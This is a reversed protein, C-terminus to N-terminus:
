ASARRLLKKVTRKWSAPFPRALCKLGHSFCRQVMFRAGIRFAEDRHFLFPVMIRLPPYGVQRFRITEADTMKLHRQLFRTVESWTEPGRKESAGNPAFLTFEEYTYHFRLGAEHFKMCLDGDACLRFSEDFGGSERVVATKALVGQHCYPHRWFIWRLDWKEHFQYRAGDRAVPAVIVQTANQEAALLRDLTAPACICDDCGLVYFWEGKADRVGKNLANYIGTDPESVVKLGPTKAALERLLEVTGDTSAGDYVLHEHPTKLAAVSEICRIMEERRGEAVANRVATVCTLKM